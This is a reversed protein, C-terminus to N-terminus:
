DAPMKYKLALQERERRPLFWTISRYMRPFKPWNFGDVDERFYLNGLILWNQGDEMVGVSRETIMVYPPHLMSETEAASRVAPQCCVLAAAFALVREWWRGGKVIERSRCCQSPAAM